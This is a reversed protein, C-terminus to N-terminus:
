VLSLKNIYDQWIKTREFNDKEVYQLCIMPSKYRIFSWYYQIDRYESYRKPLQTFYVKAMSQILGHISYSYPSNIMITGHVHYYGSECQEYTYELLKSYPSHLIVYDLLNKYLLKQQDPTSRKFKATRPYNLTIEIISSYPEVAAYSDEKKPFFISDFQEWSYDSM